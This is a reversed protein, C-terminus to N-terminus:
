KLDIAEKRYRVIGIVLLSGAIMSLGLSYSYHIAALGVGTNPAEPPPTVPPSPVGTGYSLLFSNSNGGADTQSDTGGVGDFIITGTFNGAVYIDGFSDAAINNGFANGGAADPTKTYAYSGDANYKTLFSDGSGSNGDNQSDSGGTGDFIVTNTFNGTLYINGSADTTVSNGSASGSTTDFSKTYAYSGDANYKTLFATDSGANTQSDSGGVGDFVITGGFSGTIYVNGSADAAVGAGTASGNTTDFSKTYAYSGNANYKTLFASNNGGAATQSDSGGAGDFIVAGTFYGAMYINGSADTAVGTGAAGGNTTDFIKTYGYSGNANYKTLFASNNGGAATQSDSGGVGDFVVTSFFYGEVYLNGNSDTAVGYGDAGGNTTDFIKTYGYSGNATYKTLFSDQNVSTRSDSGGVGDFIVTDSFVGAAYINGSNDAAVSIISSNGITTDFTRTWAYSGNPNYKTIFSDQGGPANQSDSGGSGDFIVTGSFIGGLYVNGSHDTTVSTGTASGNTTDFTKTYRYTANGSASASTPRALPALAAAVFAVVSLILMLRPTLKRAGLVVKCYGKSLSSKVM